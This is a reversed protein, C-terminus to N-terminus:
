LLTTETQHTVSPLWAPGVFSNSPSPRRSPLLEAECPKGMQGFKTWEDSPDPLLACFIICRLLLKVTFTLSHWQKNKAM